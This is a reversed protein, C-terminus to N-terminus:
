KGTGGAPEQTSNNTAPTEATAYYKATSSIYGTKVANGDKVDAYQIKYWGNKEATGAKEAIVKIGTIRGVNTAVDGLIKSETTPLERINLTNGEKLDVTKDCAVFGEDPNSEDVDTLYESAIYLTEGNYDIKSWHQKEDTSIGIRTLQTGISLQGKDEFTATRLHVASKYVYVTENCTTYTYEGPNKASTSTGTGNGNEGTEDGNDADGGLEVENDDGDNENKNCSALTAVIGISAILAIATIIAIIKKNM